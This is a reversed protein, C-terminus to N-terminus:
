SAPMSSEFATTSYTSIRLERKTPTESWFHSERLVVFQVARPSVNAGLELMGIYQYV